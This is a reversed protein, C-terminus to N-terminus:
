WDHDTIQMKVGPPAFLRYNRQFEEGHDDEEDIGLFEDVYQHIMEHYVVTLLLEKPTEKTQFEIVSYRGRSHQYYQGLTVRWRRSFFKPEILLNAFIKANLKRYLNKFTNLKM